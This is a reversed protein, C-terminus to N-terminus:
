MELSKKFNPLLRWSALAPLKSFSNLSVLRERDRIIAEAIVLYQKLNFQKVTAGSIARLSFISNAVSLEFASSLLFASPIRKALDTVV